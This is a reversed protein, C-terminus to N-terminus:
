IRRRRPKKPMNVTDNWAEMIEYLRYSEDEYPTGDEKYKCIIACKDLMIAETHGTDDTILLYEGNDFTYEWATCGGGTDVLNFGSYSMLKKTSYCCMAAVLPSVKYYDVLCDILAQEQETRDEKCVYTGM